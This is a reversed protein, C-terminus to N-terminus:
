FGEFAEAVRVDLGLVQVHGGPRGTSQVGM